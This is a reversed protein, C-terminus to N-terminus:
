DIKKALQPYCVEFINGSPDRFLITEGGRQKKPGSVIPAGLNRVKEVINEFDEKQCPFAIHGMTHRKFDYEKNEMIGLVISGKGIFAQRPTDWREIVEFDFMEQLFSLTKDLDIVNLGVHDFRSGIM